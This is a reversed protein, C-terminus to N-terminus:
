LAPFRYDPAGIKGGNGLEVVFGLKDESDLYYHVDNDIWGTQTVKMGKAELEQVYAKLAEDDQLVIKFHHICEGKRELSDWYINSGAIPQILELEIDGVWCVACIFDFGETIHEGHVYFDHVTDPRFHRVDWPGIGLIDWFQQMRQEVDHVLIAIQKIQEKM